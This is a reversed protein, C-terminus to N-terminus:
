GLKQRHVEWYEEGDEDEGRKLYYYTENWFAYRKKDGQLRSLFPLSEVAPVEIRKVFTGDPKFRLFETKDRLPKSTQVYLGHRDTTIHRIDPFNEPYVLKSQNLMERVASMGQEEKIRQISPILCFDDFAQQRHGELVEWAPVDRKIEHVQNGKVDFGVIKFGVPSQEVWVTEGVVCLNLSDPMVYVENGFTFFPQRFLEAVENMEADLILAKFYAKGEDGYEIQLAAFGDSLAHLQLITPKKKHERLVKGENDFVIVKNRSEALICDGDFSFVISRSPDLNFEGPGLGKKGLVRKLKLGPLQYIFIQYDQVIYCQDKYVKMMSPWLIEEVKGLNQGACPFALFGALFVTLYTKMVGGLVTYIIVLDYARRSVNNCDPWFPFGCSKTM